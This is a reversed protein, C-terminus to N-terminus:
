NDSFTMSSFNTLLNPQHLLNLLQNGILEQLNVHLSIILNNILNQYNRIYKQIKSQM